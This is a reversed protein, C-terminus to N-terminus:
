PFYSRRLGCNFISFTFNVLKTLYSFNTSVVSFVHYWHAGDKFVTHPSINNATPMFTVALVWISNPAKESYIQLIKQSPPFPQKQSNEERLIGSAKALHSHGWKQDSHAPGTQRGNNNGLLRCNRWMTEFQTKTNEFSKELSSHKCGNYPTRPAFSKWSRVFYLLFFVFIVENAVGCLISCKSLFTGLSRPQINADLFIEKIVFYCFLSKLM